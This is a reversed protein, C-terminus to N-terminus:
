NSVILKELEELDYDTRQMTNFSNTKHTYGKDQEKSLWTNIFKDIGRRTKRRTPNSDLWAIMKHLEQEINVAPYAKRWTEIKELPVDYMTKDNLPLLIGSPNLASKDPETSIISNNINNNTDKIPRGNTKSHDTIPKETTQVNQFKSYNVITITTKKRDTKKLIMEDSELLNLFRRLKSKSWGWREMLKLESTIFEGEGVTVIENGLPFKQAKNNAMLLMDTWAQGYAFPKDEWLWSNMIQRHLSIWGWNSM